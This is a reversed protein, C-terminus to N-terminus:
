DREKDDQNNVEYTKRDYYESKKGQNYSGVPRLFGCVRSYVECPTREENEM